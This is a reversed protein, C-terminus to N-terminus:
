EKAAVTKKSTAKKVETKIETKQEALKALLAELYLDKSKAPSASYVEEGKLFNYILMEEPTTPEPLREILEKATM